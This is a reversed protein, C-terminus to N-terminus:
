AEAGDSEGGAIVVQSYAKGNVRLTGEIETVGTLKINGSLELTGDPKIRLAGGKGLILEGKRADEPLEAAKGLIFLEGDGSEATLVEDEACPVYVAGGLLKAERAQGDTMVVPKAGGSTIKGIEAFGDREERAATKEGLWM